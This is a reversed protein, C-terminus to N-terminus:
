MLNFEQFKLVGVQMTAAIKCISIFFFFAILSLINQSLAFQQLL